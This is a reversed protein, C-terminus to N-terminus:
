SRLGCPFITLRKFIYQLTFSNRIDAVNLKIVVSRSWTEGGLTWQLFLVRLCAVTEGSSVLFHHRALLAQAINISSVALDSGAGYWHLIREHTDIRESRRMHM